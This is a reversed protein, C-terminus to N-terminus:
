EDFVTHRVGNRRHRLEFGPEGVDELGPLEGVLWAPLAVLVETKAVVTVDVSRWLVRRLWTVVGPMWLCGRVVIEGVLAGDLM